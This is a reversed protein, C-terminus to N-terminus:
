RDQYCAMEGMEILICNLCPPPLGLSFFIHLSSESLTKLPHPHTKDWQWKLIEACLMDTYWVTPIDVETAILCVKICTQGPPISVKMTNQQKIELCVYFHPSHYSQNSRNWFCYGDDQTLKLPFLIKWSIIQWILFHGYKSNENRNIACM